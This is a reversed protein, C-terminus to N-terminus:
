DCRITHGNDLTIFSRIFSMYIAHVM